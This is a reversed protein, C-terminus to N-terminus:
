KLAESLLYGECMGVLKAYGYWMLQHGPPPDHNRNLYGGLIAVWRVADNLTKIPPRGRSRTYANLVRLEVDSFMLEPPLETTERGLLTMLMIRWAIVMRIAIARELREASHHALREIRCGTKMVRHWDEIRWRLCYWELVQQAQEPSDIALSTLLFWEVRKVNAPPSQERVHVVSLTVPEIGKHERDNSHLTVSQYRLAAKATRAKHGVRPQQGSRKLRTSQRDISLELHGRVKGAAVTNFLTGGTLEGDQDCLRRNNKARVLIDVEPRSRQEVFLGFFDAERDMVSILQTKPLEAALEACDQLGEIWRYSTRETVPKRPGKPKPQPADFRTRLVGLPLGEASVALTSHLHLGLSEAGTQNRGMVGLGTTEPHSTFNLDTGDQLCLVTRQAQMRRLTQARHPALINEPTVESDAAQDILRYYGKVAPWDDKAVATFARMPDEGQLRASMVLRDSLRKDGLPAQGFEQDAWGVGDLGSGPALPGFPLSPAAELGLEARWAPELAYLYIAKRTETQQHRSDQRGRGSSCGLYLWNSAKLSVGSHTLTDVFTEVLWPRYGYATEVDDGLRRLTQGLAWSALNRCRVGPRILFRNLGVIRSLHRRRQEDSWGIWRDRAALKLASAGLGVAGLWGHASGILYRLQCGVLPGAGRPHEHVMLGDWIARQAADVVPVLCLEQLDEFVAPVARAAEVSVAERRRAVAPRATLPTPLEFHGSRELDRLAKLCSARQRKGHASHFSFEDCLADALATRHAISDDSLLAHIRSLGHPQTLTRKIQHQAWM